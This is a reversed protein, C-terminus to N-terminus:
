YSLIFEDLIGRMKSIAQEPMLMILHSIFNYSELSFNVEMLLAHTWTLNDVNIVADPPVNEAM